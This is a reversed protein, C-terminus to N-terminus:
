IEGKDILTEIYENIISKRNSCAPEHINKYLTYSDLPEGGGCFLQIECEKCKAMNITKRHKWEYYKELDIQLENDLNGISLENIGVVNENTYIQGSPTFIFQRGDTAESFSFLPYSILPSQQGKISRHLHALLEIDAVRYTTNASKDKFFLPELKELFKTEKLELDSYLNKSRALTVFFSGNNKWDMKKIFDNIEDINNISNVDFNIKLNVELKKLLLDDIVKLPNDQNSTSNLIKAADIAIQVCAIHQYNNGLLIIATDNINDNCVIELRENKSKLKDIIYKLVDIDEDLFLSEYTLRYIRKEYNGYQDENAIKESLTLVKDVLDTTITNNENLKVINFIYPSQKEIENTVENYMSNYFKEYGDYTDLIYNRDKLTSIIKDEIEYLKDMNSDKLALAVEENAIDINGSINNILLYEDDDIKKVILNNPIYM